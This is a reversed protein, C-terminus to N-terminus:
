NKFRLAPLFTECHRVAFGHQEFTQVVAAEDAPNCVVDGVDLHKIGFLWRILRGNAKKQLVPFGARTGGAFSWLGGRQLRAAIKPALEAMPIFGTVFHTGVLDFVVDDFHDGLNAADDVAAELDPVRARAIDIMKQSIDLGYPVLRPGALVRLKELFRGTGVGLDLVKLSGKKGDAEEHRAIQRLARDLSDGIVSQPDRDYRSAIIDDYQRQIAQDQM